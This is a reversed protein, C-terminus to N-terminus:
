SEPTARRWDAYVGEEIYRCGDGSWQWGVVKGQQDIELIRQCDVFETTRGATTTRSSGTQDSISTTRVVMEPTTIATTHNWIYQKHGKFESVEHPPGWHAVVERVDAGEWSAMIRNMTRATSCGAVVIITFILLYPVFLTRDMRM